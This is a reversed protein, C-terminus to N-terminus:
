ELPDAPTALDIPAQADPIPTPMDVPGAPMNAAGIEEAVALEEPGMEPPPEEPTLLEMAQEIWDQLLKQREAPAGDNRARLLASTVRALGMELDMFPEPAAAKGDVLMDSIQRDIDELAATELSTFQELDPMDLLALAQGREVFGAKLMDEVTAMRGAPTHPLYSSPFCQLEYADRDMDIDGWSIDEFGGKVIHRSNYGGELVADLQKCADVTLHSLQIFFAEWEQALLAHRGTETDQLTRLAIGSEIGAPKMSAASMMSVGTGEFIKQYLNDVMRFVEGSVSPPMETHPKMQAGRQVKVMTGPVNKMDAPNISGEEFFTVPVSYLHMAEQIRRLLKNLQGQMPEQDEVLGQPFFGLLPIAWRFFAFPFREVTWPEDLMDAGDVCIVHRGDTADPGSPLHWSEGTEVIDTIKLAGPEKPTDSLSIKGVNNYIAKKSKPFREALVEAPYYGVQFMTRPESTQCAAEDVDLLGPFVREYRVRRRVPDPWVKMAGLGVVGGDYFVPTSRRYVDGRYWEGQVAQDLKKAIQKMGWADPGSTSTLHRPKIKQSAIRAALTHVCNAAPNMYLRKEGSLFHSAKGKRSLTTAGPTWGNVDRNMFISLFRRWRDHREGRNRELGELTSWLSNHVQGKPQQWYHKKSIM